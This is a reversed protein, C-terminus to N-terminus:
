IYHDNYIWSRFWPVALLPDLLLLPDVTVQLLV